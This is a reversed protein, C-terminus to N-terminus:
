KALISVTGMGIGGDEQTFAAVAEQIRTNNMPLFKPLFKGCEPSAAAGALLALGAGTEFDHKAAKSKDCMAETLPMFM